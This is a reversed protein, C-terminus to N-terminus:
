AGLDAGLAALKERFNSYGRFIQWADLVRTEGEAVMGCLTLAAGARLDLARVEAGKLAGGRGLIRLMDGDVTYDVGM